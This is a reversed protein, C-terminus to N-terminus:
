SPRWNTDIWADNFMRGHFPNGVLGKVFPKCLYVWADSYLPLCPMSLLLVRECEELKRMRAAPDITTKATTLLNKYQPDSWGTGSATPSRFIDLFWTPDEL